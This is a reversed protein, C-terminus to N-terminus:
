RKRQYRSKVLGNSLVTTQLHRFRLDNNLSGFLSIGNGILVPLRTIILEDICDEKLFDQIVKGGDVYITSYGKNELHKLVERPKMSLLEVKGKLQTPVKKLTTSLVYVKREYLWTPFSLVTEFTGRGIVIADIKRIFEGYSKHVEKSEFEALWDINGDKRALYGDLSTGVYVFTKLRREKLIQPLDLCALPM